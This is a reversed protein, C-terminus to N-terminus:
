FVMRIKFDRMQEDIVAINRSHSHFCFNSRRVIGYQLWDQKV